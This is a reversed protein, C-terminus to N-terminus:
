ENFVEASLSSIPDSAPFTAALAEDLLSDEHRIRSRSDQETDFDNLAETSVYTTQARMKFYGFDNVVSLRAITSLFVKSSIGSLAM